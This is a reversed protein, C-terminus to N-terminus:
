FACVSGVIIHVAKQLARLKRFVPQHALKRTSRDRSVIVAAPQCAASPGDCLCSRHLGFSPLLDRVKVVRHQLALGPLARSEQLLRTIPILRQPLLDLRQEAVIRGRRSEKFCRRHPHDGPRDTRRGTRGLHDATLKSWVLDERREAGTAHALDIASAIALETALHGDLHQRRVERRIWLAAGAERAFRAREGREVM